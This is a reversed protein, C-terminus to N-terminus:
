QLSIKLDEHILRQSALKGHADFSLIVVWDYVDDPWKGGPILDPSAGFAALLAPIQGHRWAVLPHPGHPETRLEKVLEPGDKTGISDHLAMGTATHLPELTLRPRMSETSDAGAYLGDVAFSLDGDRFHQFYNVYARARAEGQPTLGRSNVSTDGKAPKESHRIVLVVNNALYDKNVQALGSGAAACAVVFTLFVRVSRM